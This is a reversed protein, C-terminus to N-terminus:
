QLLVVVFHVIAVFNSISVIAGATPVVTAQVAPLICVDLSEGSEDVLQECVYTDDICRGRSCVCGADGARCTNPTSTGNIPTTYVTCYGLNGGAATRCVASQACTDGRKCETGPSFPPPMTGRQAGTTMAVVTSSPAASELECNLACVSSSDGPSHAFGVVDIKQVMDAAETRFAYDTAVRSWANDGEIRVDVSYTKAAVDVDFLVHLPKTPQFSFVIEADYKDRFDFVVIM